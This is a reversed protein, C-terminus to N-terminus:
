ELLSDLTEESYTQKYEMSDGVMFNEPRFMTTFPEEITQGDRNKILQTRLEGSARLAEDYFLSVVRHSARELMNFESLADLSYRGGKRVAKKWGERNAQACLFAILGREGFHTVLDNVFAIFADVGYESSSMSKFFKMMNIYDVIFADLGGCMGSCKELAQRFSTETVVSANHAGIDVTDLIFIRGKIERFSPIVEKFLVVEEEPTLFAKRIRKATIKTDPFLTLAHRSLLNFFVDRKSVELTVIATNYGLEVANKYALSVAFTSKGSAVYGFVTSVTGYSCGSVEEDLLDIYFKMGAPKEKISAYAEEAAYGAHDHIGSEESKVFHRKLREIKEPTISVESAAQLLEKRLAKESEAAVINKIYSSFDEVRVGEQIFPFNKRVKKKDPFVGYSGKYQLIFDLVEISQQGEKGLTSLFTKYSLIDGEKGDVLSEVINDM